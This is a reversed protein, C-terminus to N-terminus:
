KGAIEKLLDRIDLLLEIMLRDSVNMFGCYKEAQTFLAEIDERKRM